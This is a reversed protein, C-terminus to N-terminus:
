KSLCQNYLVSSFTKTCAKGDLCTLILLKDTKKRHRQTLYPSLLPPSSSAARPLSHICQTLKRGKDNDKRLLSKLRPNMWVTETFQRMAYRRAIAVKAKPEWDLVRGTAIYLLTPDPPVYIPSGLPIETDHKLWRFDRVTHCPLLKSCLTSVFDAVALVPTLLRIICSELQIVHNSGPFPFSLLIM